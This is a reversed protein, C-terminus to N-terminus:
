CRGRLEEVYARAAAEARERRAVGAPRVELYLDAAALLADLCARPEPRAVTAHLQPLLDPAFREIRRLGSPLVGRQQAILPGLVVSRLVGLADLCELLEGRGAKAAAYHLWVWFRDELWQPDPAPWAPETGRRADDVATGRQWVIVGDEVRHGQEAARVCKVDVHRAPDGVLAIVLSPEGVHEGTFAVLVDGLAAVFEHARRPLDTGDEGYVVVLDLDSFEDAAGAAVSGNVVLGVAADDAQALEVARALLDRLPAPTRDLDV